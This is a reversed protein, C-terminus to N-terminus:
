IEPAAGRGCSSKARRRLFSPLIRLTEEQGGELEARVGDRLMLDPQAPQCRYLVINRPHVPIFQLNYLSPFSTSQSEDRGCDWMERSVHM